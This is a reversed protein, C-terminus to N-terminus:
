MTRIVGPALRAWVVASSVARVRAITSRFGPEGFPLYAAVQALLGYLPAAATRELYIALSADGGSWTPGGPAGLLFVVLPLVLWM